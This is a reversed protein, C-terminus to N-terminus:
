GARVSAVAEALMGIAGAIAPESLNAYGLALMAPPPRTAVRYSSVGELAIGRARAAAVVAEEELDAAM